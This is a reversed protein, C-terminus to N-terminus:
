SSPLRLPRWDPLQSTQVSPQVQKVDAQLFRMFRMNGLEQLFAHRCQLPAAAQSAELVVATEPEVQVHVWAGGQACAESLSTAQSQSSERNHRYNGEGRCESQASEPLSPLSCGSVCCVSFFIESILWRWFCGCAWIHSLPYSLTTWGPYVSRHATSLISFSPPLLPLM